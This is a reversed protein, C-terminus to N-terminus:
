RGNRVDEWKKTEPNRIQKIPDGSFKDCNIRSKACEECHWFRKNSREGRFYFHAKIKHSCGCQVEDLKPCGMCPVMYTTKTACRDCLVDPRMEPIQATEPRRLPAQIQEEFEEDGAARSKYDTM